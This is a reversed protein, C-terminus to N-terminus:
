HLVHVPPFSPHFLVFFFPRRDITTKRKRENLRQLKEGAEPPFSSPSAYIKSAIHPLSLLVRTVPLLLLLPHPCAAPGQQAATSSPSPAAATLLLSELLM